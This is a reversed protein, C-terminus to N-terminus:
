VSREVRNKGMLKDIAVFLLAVTIFAVAVGASNLLTQPYGLKTVDLFPYPYYGSLAGRILVIVLYAIPYVAWLFINDWKLRNKPVFVFWFIIFLIPIVLHLLEDVVRQMGQPNWLFRLIANYTAGVITINVAIATLTTAKSFFKGWASGSAVLLVTSGVAILINTLITFFTFYRIITEPLSAQRNVVILYFQGTLAFWGVIALLILYARAAPSLPKEM